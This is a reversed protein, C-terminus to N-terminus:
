IEQDVPPRETVTKNKWGSARLDLQAAEVFMAMSEPLAVSKVRRTVAKVIEIEDDTLHVTSEIVAKQGFLTIALETPWLLPNDRKQESAWPLARRLSQLAVAMSFNGRSSIECTEM